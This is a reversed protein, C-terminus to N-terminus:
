EMKEEETSPKKQKNTKNKKTKKLLGLIIHSFLIKKENKFYM